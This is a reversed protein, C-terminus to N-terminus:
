RVLIRMCEPCHVAEDEPARRLGELQASPIELHCGECRAGVLRAVAVGLGARLPEYQELLGAPVEAAAATRAAEVDSVQVDLEAVAVTLRAEAEDLATNAQVLAADAAALEAEVPEAAEMLELARDEFGTQRDHLSAQELQLSELEKHAVVSGDYMTAQVERAKDELLTAHDECEKQERRLEHLRAAIQERAATDAAVDAAAADRAAREPLTRRRHRLQDLTTDLEQVVLLQELASM